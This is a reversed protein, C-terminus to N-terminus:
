PRAESGFTQGIATFLPEYSTRGLPTTIQYGRGQMFEFVTRAEMNSLQALPTHAQLLRVLEAIEADAM